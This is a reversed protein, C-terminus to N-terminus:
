SGRGLKLVLRLRQTAAGLRAERATVLGAIEGRVSPSLRVVRALYLEARELHAADGLACFLDLELTGAAVLVRPHTPGLRVAMEMRAVGEHLDRGKDQEWLKILLYAVLM